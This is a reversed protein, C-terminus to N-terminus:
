PGPLLKKRIRKPGTVSQYAEPLRPRREATHMEPHERAIAPEVEDISQLAREAYRHPAGSHAGREAICQPFCPGATDPVIRGVAQEFKRVVFLPLPRSVLEFVFPRARLGRRNSRGSLLVDPRNM